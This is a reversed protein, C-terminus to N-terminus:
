DNMSFDIYAKRLAKLIKERKSNATLGKPLRTSWHQWHHELGSNYARRAPHTKKSFFDIAEELQNLNVFCFVFSCEKVFYVQQQLLQESREIPVGGIQYTSMFDRHKTPDAKEKWHKGM